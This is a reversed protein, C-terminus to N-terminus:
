KAGRKQPKRKAPTSARRPAKPEEVPASPEKTEQEGTPVEVTQEAPDGAKEQELLHRHILMGM